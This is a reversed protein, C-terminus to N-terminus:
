LVHRQPVCLRRQRAAAGAPACRALAGIQLCPPAPPLAHRAHTRAHVLPMAIVAQPQRSASNACIQLHIDGGGASCSHVLPPAAGCARRPTDHLSNSDPADETDYYSALLSKVKSAKDASGRPGVM